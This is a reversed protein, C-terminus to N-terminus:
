EEDPNLLIYDDSEEAKKSKKSKKRFQKEADVDQDALDWDNEDEDIEADRGLKIMLRLQNASDANRLADEYTIEGVEYLDYLAQDFTQMGMNTSKAMVEKIKAIAGKQILDSVFPTGILIELAARRSRGDVTAILQQAIIGKLNLALDLLIQERREFPFFNVIRELAQNANNAHLTALCLHGTEAFTLAHEMTERTRIEGILIVDPAQRLTNKLAIGYSDTDVGVERQTIICNDHQHIYEIPDEISIIHGHSNRNRHGIMAALSTSKGSGTGGVVLILGRKEMVLDNLQLPLKLEEVTPIQTEIKRLVMGVKQKQCFVSVRFRGINPRHIAFNAEQTEDFEQRQETNMVSYVVDAAQQQDLPNPSVPVNRGNIKLTPPLDASVFMDSAKKRMMLKLLYDFNEISQTTKKVM